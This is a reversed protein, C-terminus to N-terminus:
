QIAKKQTYMFMSTGVLLITVFLLLPALGTEVFSLACSAVFLMCSVFAARAIMMETTNSGVRQLLKYYAFASVTYAIIIGLAATQRLPMVSSQHSLLFMTCIATEALVAIWPTQHRNLQTVRQAAFTHNNEALTYLNWANSFLIGYAGGLASSGIACSLLISMKHAIINSSFFTDCMAPFIDKYSTMNTLLTHINMYICAQFLGYLMMIIGFSYYVAKPGNIKANDINRSLSCATEFGALCYLVLPINMAMASIASYDIVISSTDCLMIGAVLAFLLPISKSTLFFLQVALGVKMNQLNLLTFIGLLCLSITMINYSQTAPILQQVM